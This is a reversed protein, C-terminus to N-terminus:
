HDSSAKGKEPFKLAKQKGVFERFLHHLGVVGRPGESIQLSEISSSEVCQVIEELSMQMIRLLTEVQSSRTTLFKGLHEFTVIDITAHLPWEKSGKWHCRVHPTRNLQLDSSKSDLFVEYLEGQVVIVPFGVAAVEPLHGSKRRPNDYEDVVNKAASVVSRIANYFRDNGDKSLAQRGNFGSRAPTSFLELDQLHKIGAEKWLIASGLHSAITQTICASPAIGHNNTFVVWPKDKSWKCEVVHYVRLLRKKSHGDRFALVDVERPSESNPDKIYSGQRVAFGAEHFKKAVQFELPYGEHELWERVRKDLQEADDSM